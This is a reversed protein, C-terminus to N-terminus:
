GVDGLSNQLGGKESQLADHINQWILMFEEVSNNKIHAYHEATAYYNEFMWEPM